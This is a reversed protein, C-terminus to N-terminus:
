LLFILMQSQSAAINGEKHQVFVQNAPVHGNYLESAAMLYGQFGAQLHDGPALVEELPYWLIRGGEDLEAWLWQVLPM